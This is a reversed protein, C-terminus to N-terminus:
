FVRGADFPTEDEDGPKSPLRKQEPRHPKREWVGGTAYNQRSRRIVEKARQFDPRDPARYTKLRFVSRDIKGIAEGTQLRIFQQWSYHQEENNGIEYERSLRRADDSSVGFTLMTAVNGLINRLLEQDIQGTQQHAL